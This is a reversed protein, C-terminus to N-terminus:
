ISSRNAISPNCYRIVFYVQGIRRLVLEIELIIGIIFSVGIQQGLIARAKGYEEVCTDGLTGM